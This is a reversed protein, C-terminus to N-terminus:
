RLLLPRLQGWVTELLLDQASERPHIGDAQFMERKSEIAELLSAVVPVSHQQALEAYASQFKERYSKGYNTPLRVGILLIKSKAKLASRIMANMNDRFLPVPLGRLGDNGGLQLIVIRPQHQRLLNDLRVRAAGSTEGSISANVVRYDFQKAQLRQQLLHVWGTNQALGYGASLSDGVVLLTSPAAAALATHMFM